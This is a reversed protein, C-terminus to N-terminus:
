CYALVGIGRGCSTVSMVEEWAEEGGLGADDLSKGALVVDGNQSGVIGGEGRKQAVVSDELLHGGVGADDGGDELVVDDGAGVEGTVEGLGGLEELGEQGVVGVLIDLAALDDLANDSALRDDEVAAELQVGGDDSTYTSGGDM